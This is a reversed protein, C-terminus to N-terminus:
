LDSIKAVSLATAITDKIKERSLKPKDPINHLAEQIAKELESKNVIQDKKIGKCFAKSYAIALAAITFYLEEQKAELTFPDVKSLDEFPMKPFQNTRKAWAIITDPKFLHISGYLREGADPKQNTHYPKLEGVKIARDIFEKAENLKQNSPESKVIDPDLGLCLAPLEKENWAPLNRWHKLRANDM